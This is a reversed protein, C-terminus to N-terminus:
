WELIRPPPQLRRCFSAEPFFKHPAASNANPRREKRHCKRKCKEQCCFVPSSGVSDTYSSHTGVPVHVVVPLCRPVNHFQQARWLTNCDWGAIIRFRFRYYLCCFWIISAVFSHPSPEAGFTIGFAASEYGRPAPRYAIRAQKKQLHAKKQIRWPLVVFLM